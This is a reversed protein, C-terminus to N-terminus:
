GKLLEQYEYIIAIDYQKDIKNYFSLDLEGNNIFFIDRNEESNDVLEDFSYNTKHDTNYNDVYKSLVEHLKKENLGLMSMFESTNLIKDKDKSYNFVKPKLNKNTMNCYDEEIPLISFSIFRSNEHFREEALIITYYNYIDKNKCNGPYSTNKITKNYLDLVYNNFVKVVKNQFVDSDYDYKVTNYKEENLAHTCNNKDKCIVIKKSDDTYSLKGIFDMRKIDPNQKQKNNNNTSNNQLFLSLIGLGILIFGLIFLIIILIKRKM